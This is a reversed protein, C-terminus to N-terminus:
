ARRCSERQHKRCYVHGGYRSPHDLCWTSTGNSVTADCEACVTTDVVPATGDVYNALERRDWLDIEWAVACEIAPETFFSNTVVLGRVCDYRKMGDILQRVADVGVSGSHRKAQVGTREGDKTLVLDAGKDYGGVLEVDYGLLEFLEALAREFDAGSMADLRTFRPDPALMRISSPLQLSIRSSHADHLQASISAPACSGAASARSRSRRKPSSPGLAVAVVPMLVFIYPTSSATWGQVVVLVMLFVGVGSAAIFNM